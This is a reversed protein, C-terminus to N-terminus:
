KELSEVPHCEYWNHEKDFRSIGQVTVIQGIKPQKCPLKPICEAVICSQRDFKKINSECVTFHVDGDRVDSVHTVRGSVRVHTHVNEAMSHPAVPFYERGEYRQSSESEIELLRKDGCDLFPASHNKYDQRTAKYARGVQLQGCNNTHDWAQCHAVIKIGKHLLTYRIEDKDCPGLNPACMLGEYRHTTAESRTVLYGTQERYYDCGAWASTLLIVLALSKMKELSREAAHEYSSSAELRYPKRSLM